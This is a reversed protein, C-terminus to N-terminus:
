PQVFLAISEVHSTQPFMDMIGAQQLRLGKDRVLIGADRALTAPNCSVYVLRDVGAFSLHEIIERAGNRPPDILIKNYTKNFAPIALDAQMLDFALFDANGIGNRAANERARQVLRESVEIGTVATGQRAIPLSFNGLGCFLDLASDGPSPALLGSVRGVMAKNIDFNVQTFDDPRFHIDIGYQDLLYSLDTATRENLPAVTEPGGSQLYIAFGSHAQFDSLRQRDAATLEVLHRFILATVNDGIAVELQPIQDYCDLGRIFDRLETLRRGVAPHLVECSELDAIYNSRKERFGLLLKEKKFVYKLGLRAKRRYGWAPSRLPPLVAEPKVNGIHRLQELLVHQKHEVQDDSPMHQLSCGGCVAYHPCPPQVRRPSPRLIDIVYGEAFKARRRTYRFTVDEGPLASDIFVAKGGIHAVGRGEHSIDDITARVPEPTLKRSM